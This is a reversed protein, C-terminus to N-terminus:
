NTVAELAGMTAMPTARCNNALDIAALGDGCPPLIITDGTIVAPAHKKGCGILALVLMLILILRMYM